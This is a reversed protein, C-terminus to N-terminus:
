GWPANENLFGRGICNMQVMKIWVGWDLSKGLSVCIEIDVDDALQVEPKAQCSLTRLFCGWESACVRVWM